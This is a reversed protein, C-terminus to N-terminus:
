HVGAPKKYPGTTTASACYAPDGFLYLRDENQVEEERWLQLIEAEIGSDEFMYWDGRSAVTPGALSAMIGDPTIVGQFKFGHPKKHGTYMKRQGEVPRRIKQMTGDIWGCINDGGGLRNIAGSFQRLKNMTLRGRDFFIEQSKDDGSM